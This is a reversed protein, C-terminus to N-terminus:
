SLGLFQPQSNIFLSIIREVTLRKEWDWSFIWIIRQLYTLSNGCLSLCIVLSVYHGFQFFVIIRMTQEAYEKRPLEAKTPGATYM